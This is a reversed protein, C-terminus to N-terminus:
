RHFSEVHGLPQYNRAAWAVLALAFVMDTEMGADKLDAPYQRLEDLLQDNPPMRFKKQAIYDQLNNILAVKKGPNGGFQYPIFPIGLDDLWESQMDGGMGTADTIFEGGYKRFITAIDMFINEWTLMGGGARYIHVQMYPTVSVDWTIAGTFDGKRGFDVGTIYNHGPNPPIEQALTTDLIDDVLSDKFASFASDTFKGEVRERIWFDSKGEMDRLISEQDAHPNTRSDSYQSYVKEEYYKNLIRKTLSM